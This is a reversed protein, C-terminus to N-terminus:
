ELSRGRKEGKWMYTEDAEVEYELPERDADIMSMRIKHLWTWATQYSGLGLQRKLEMASIGMKRTAIDWLAYFWETLSKRTNRMVTDSIFSAQLGCNCCQILWRTTIFSYDFNGCKPCQWGDEGWKLNAIYQLCKEDTNFARQFQIVSGFTKPKEGYLAKDLWKPVEQKHRM